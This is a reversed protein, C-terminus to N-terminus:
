KQAKERTENIKELIQMYDGTHRPKRDLTICVQQSGKEFSLDFFTSDPRLMVIRGNPESTVYTGSDTKEFPKQMAMYYDIKTRNGNEFVYIATLDPSIAFYVRGDFHGKRANEGEINFYSADYLGSELPQSEYFTKEAAATSDAKEKSEAGGSCASFGTLLVIASLLSLIKKM